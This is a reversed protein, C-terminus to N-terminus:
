PEGVKTDDLRAPGRHWPGGCGKFGSLAMLFSGAVVTVTRYRAIEPLVSCLAAVDLERCHVEFDAVLHVTAPEYGRRSLVSKAWRGGFSPFM